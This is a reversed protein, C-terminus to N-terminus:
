IFINSVLIIKLAACPVNQVMKERPPQTPRTTDAGDTGCEVTLPSYETERKLSKTPGLQRNSNLNGQGM